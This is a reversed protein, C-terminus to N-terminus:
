FLVLMLIDNATDRKEVEGTMAILHVFYSLTGIGATKRLRRRKAWIPM